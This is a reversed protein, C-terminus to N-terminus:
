SIAEIRYRKSCGKRINTNRNYRVEIDSNDKQVIYYNEIIKIIIGFSQTIGNYIKVRNFLELPTISQLTPM